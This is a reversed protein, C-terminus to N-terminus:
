AFKDVTDRKTMSQQSLQAHVSSLNSERFEQQSFHIYFPQNYFGHFKLSSQIDCKCGPRLGKVCTVYREDRKLPANRLCIEQYQSRRDHQTCQADRFQRCTCTTRMNSGLLLIQMSVQRCKYYAICTVSRWMCASGIAMRHRFSPSLLFLNMFRAVALQPQVPQSGASSPRRKM